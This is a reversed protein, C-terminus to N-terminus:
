ADREKKCIVSFKQSPNSKLYGSLQMQKANVPGDVVVSHRKSFGFISVAQRNYRVVDLEAHLAGNEVNYAGAYYYGADGGMITKSNVVIVGTGAGMAARFEVTWLGEIM